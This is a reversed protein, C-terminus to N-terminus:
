YSTHGGKAAIVAQLRRPMSEVLKKTVDTTIEYWENKVNEWLEERNRSTYGDIRRGLEDWLNEIPNLDPSQAPWTMVDIENEEFWTM